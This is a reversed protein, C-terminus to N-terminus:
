SHESIMMFMSIVVSIVGGGMLIQSTITLIKLDLFVCGLLIAGISCLMMKTGNNM